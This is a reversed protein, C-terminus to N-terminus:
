HGEIWVNRLLPPGTPDTALGKVYTKYLIPQVYFYIPALPMDQVFIKEAEHFAKM